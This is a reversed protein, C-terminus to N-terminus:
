IWGLISRVIRKGRQSIGILVVGYLAAGSLISLALSVRHGLELLSRLLWVGGGMVTAAILQEGVFRWELESAPIVRDTLYWYNTAMWTAYAVVLAAVFVVPPSTIAVALLLIGWLIANYANARAVAEPNDSGNLTSLMIRSQSDLITVAAIGVLVFGSGGYGEGYMTVMLSDGLVAAGALIPVALISTVDIGNQIPTVDREGRETDGSVQVFISQIVSRTPIKGPQALTLASRVWSAFTPSIFTGAIVTPFNHFAELSIRSVITRSSFERVSRVDDVTPRDTPLGCRWLYATGGVAAASIASSYLLGEVGLGFGLILVFRLVATLVGDVFDLSAAFGTKGVGDFVREVVYFLPRTTLHIVAPLALLEFRTKFLTVAIFVGLGALTGFAITAVAGIVFFRDRSSLDESVRKSVAIGIAKPVSAAMMSMGIVTYAVGFEDTPFYNAFYVFAVFAAIKDLSDSLFTILSERIIDVNAASSM